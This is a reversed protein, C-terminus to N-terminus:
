APEEAAPLHLHVEVGAEILQACLEVAATRMGQAFAHAVADEVACAVADDAIPLEPGACALLAQDTAWRSDLGELYLSLPEDMARGKRPRCAIINGEGGFPM